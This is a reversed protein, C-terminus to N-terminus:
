YSKPLHTSFLLARIIKLLHINKREAIRNQQPTCVCSSQHIIDKTRLFTQFEHNTYETDNDTKLVKITTNFQNEDMSCFNKFITGVDRKSKLLYLWTARSKDDIFIIFYKSDVPANCWLDSHVLGFLEDSNNLSDSFPL